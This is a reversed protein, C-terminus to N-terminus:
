KIHVAPDLISALLADPTEAKIKYVERM